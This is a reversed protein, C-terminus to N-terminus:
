AADNSSVSLPTTALRPGDTVSLTPKMPSTSLPSSTDMCPGSSTVPSRACIQACFCELRQSSSMRQWFWSGSWTAVLQSPQASLSPIGTSAIARHRFPSSPFANSVADNSSAFRRFIVPEGVKSMAWLFYAPGRWASLTVRAM